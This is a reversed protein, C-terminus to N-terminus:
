EVGEPSIDPMMKVRGSGNRLKRLLDPRNNFYLGTLATIDFDAILKL